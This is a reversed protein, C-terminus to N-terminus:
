PIRYRAAKVDLVVVQLLKAVSMSASPTARDYASPGPLPVVVNAPAPDHLLQFSILSHLPVPCSFILINLLSELRVALPPLCLYGRLSVFPLCAAAAASLFRLLLSNRPCVDRLCFLLLLSSSALFIFPVVLLPLLNVCDKARINSIM